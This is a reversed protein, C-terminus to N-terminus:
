YLKYSENHHIERTPVLLGNGVFLLAHHPIFSNLRKLTVFHTTKIYPM